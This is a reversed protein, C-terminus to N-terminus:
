QVKTNFKAVLEEASNLVAMKSRARDVRTLLVVSNSTAGVVLEQGDVRLLSITRRNGLSLTELAQLRHSAIRIRFPRMAQLLSLGASRLRSFLKLRAEAPSKGKRKRSVPRKKRIVPNSESQTLQETKM